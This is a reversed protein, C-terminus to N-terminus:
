VVADVVAERVRIYSLGAKALIQAVVGEPERVLGLLLHVTGVYDHSLLRAEEIAIEVVKKARPTQPLKQQVVKKVGCPILKETEKRLNSLNGILKQLVPFADGQDSHLIASLIDEADIETHKHAIARQNAVAVLRRASSTFHEFVDYGKMQTSNEKTFPFM